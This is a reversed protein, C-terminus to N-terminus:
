SLTEWDEPDAGDELAAMEAELDFGEDEVEDLAKPNEFFHHAWFDELMDDVTADLFRPDTKTLSYKRRFWFEIEQSQERGQQKTARARQAM